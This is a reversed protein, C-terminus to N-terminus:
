DATAAATPTGAAAAERRSAVGLAALVASVHHDVTKASIFLRAAIEKNTLGDRILELIQQQRETLGLPNRRTSPRRGTAVAREGLGRLRSRALRATGLAGLTELRALAEGLSAPDGQDILALAARYACGRADWAAAPEFGPVGDLRRRWRGVEAAAAPYTRQVAAAAVALEDRAASTDGALWLLEVRALRTLVIWPAEGLADAWAVAPDLVVEAGGEGRRIRVQALAVRSTLQNVPSSNTALVEEAARVADDWHGLEAAALAHRGRLCSGYTALERDDCFVVGRQYDSEAEVIRFSTVLYEYLTSYSAGGLQDLGESLALGLAHRLPLEWDGGSRFAAESEILLLQARLDALGLSDAVQRARGADETLADLSEADPCRNAYAWGLEPSPGLPELMRVAEHSYRVSEDGRCLRWMVISLRRLDEGVRLPQELTRWLEIAALRQAASEEWRDLFALETALADLLGAREVVRESRILRLARRYQATAERHAGLGAARDGAAAAFRTGQEARGAQDAHFALRAADEGDGALLADLIRGHLELRRHPSIASDIALRALEHRFRLFPGDVLVLGSRVADDLQDGSVGAALAVGPGIRGGILALTELGTRSPAPLSLARGLVADRASHPLEASGAALLETLFFANGGTLEYLRVPDLGSSGALERVADLDLPELHLRRTSRERALEGLVPRWADDGESADTRYTVVILAKLRAVRRGLFRLLDLTAEDAWHLDEFVLVTPRPGALAEAAAAFVDVRPADARLLRTLETGLGAAVDLLPGLPRPTFHAECAGSLWRVGDVRARLAEVLASKGVGAEGAVVALRGFGSAAAAAWDTLQELSRDRGVLAM